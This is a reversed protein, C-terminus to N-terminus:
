RGCRRLAAALRLATEANCRGLEVLPYLPDIGLSPLTIGSGALAERLEHAASEADTRGHLISM